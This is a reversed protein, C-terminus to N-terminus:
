YHEVHFMAPFDLRELQSTNWTSCRAGLNGHVIGGFRPLEEGLPTADGLLGFRSELRLLQEVHFLDGPRQFHEVHFLDAPFGLRGLQRPTGRPVDPEWTGRASEALDRSSAASPRRWSGSGDRVWYHEVHFLGGLALHTGRPVPTPDPPRTARGASTNWTSCTRRSASGGDGPHMRAKTAPPTGRPVARPVMQAASTNWTSRSASVLLPCM